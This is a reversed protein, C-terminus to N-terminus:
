SVADKTAAIVEQYYPTSTNVDTTATEGGDSATAGVGGTTYFTADAMTEVEAFHIGGAQYSASMQHDTYVEVANGDTDYMSYHNSASGADGSEGTEFKLTGAGHTHDSTDFSHNHGSSIEMSGGSGPDGSASFCLAANDQWDTKRTWGTPASNQGFIMVTGAPFADPRFLDGNSEHRGVLVSTGGVEMSFLAAENAATEPSSSQEVFVCKKHHGIQSSAAGFATTETSEFVHDEALRERVARKFERIDDDGLKPNRSGAPKTEDWTDAM